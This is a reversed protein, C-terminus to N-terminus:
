AAWQVVQRPIVAEVTIRLEGSGDWEEPNAESHAPPIDQRQRPHPHAPAEVCAMSM